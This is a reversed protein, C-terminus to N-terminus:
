GMKQVILEEGTQVLLTGRTMSLGMLVCSASHRPEQVFIICSAGLRPILMTGEMLKEKAPSHHKQFLRYVISQSTLEQWALNEQFAM